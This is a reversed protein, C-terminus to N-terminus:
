QEGKFPQGKSNTSIAKAISAGFATLAISLLVYFETENPLRGLKIYAVSAPLVVALTHYFANFVNVWKIKGFESQQWATKKKAM